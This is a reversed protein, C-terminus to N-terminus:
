IIVLGNAGPLHGQRLCRIVERTDLPLLGRLEERHRGLADRNAPTDAVILILIDVEGDRLKLAARREVAQIDSVKTEAECGARRGLLRITADWARKDGPIPLPVETRWMAGTPLRERFRELLRLQGADRVPDGDPFTRASLHLGVAEAARCAQDFTLTVVEAREIRGLQSKSM